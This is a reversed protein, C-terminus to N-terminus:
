PGSQTSTANINGRARAPIAIYVGMRERRQQDTRPERRREPLQRTTRPRGEEAQYPQQVPGGVQERAALRQEERGRQDAEIEGLERLRVKDEFGRDDRDPARDVRPAKGRMGWHPSHLYMMPAASMARCAATSTASDTIRFESHVCGRALGLPLRMKRSGANRSSRVGCWANQLEGRRVRSALPANIIAVFPGLPMTVSTQRVQLLRCLEEGLSTGAATSSRATRCFLRACRLWVLSLSRRLPSRRVRPRCVCCPTRPRNIGSVVGVSM